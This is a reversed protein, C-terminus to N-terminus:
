GTFISSATLVEGSADGNVKAVVADIIRNAAGKDDGESVLQVIEAIADVTLM